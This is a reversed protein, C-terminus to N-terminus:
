REVEKNTKYQEIEPFDTQEACEEIRKTLLEEQETGGNLWDLNRQWRMNLGMLGLELVFENGFKDWEIIFHIFSFNVWNWKRIPLIQLWDCWFSLGTKDWIIDELKKDKSM